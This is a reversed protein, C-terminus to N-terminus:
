IEQRTKKQFKIIKVKLITIQNLIKLIKIASESDSLCVYDICSINSLFELRKNQKFIPRGSGKNVFKDSTVTVILKDGKKKAEKFHKIHGIHVVDFM